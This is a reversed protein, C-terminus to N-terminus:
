TDLKALIDLVALRTSVTFDTQQSISYQLQRRLTPYEYGSGSQELLTGIAEFLYQRQPEPLEFYPAIAIDTTQEGETLDTVARIYTEVEFAGSEAAIRFEEARETAHETVRYALSNLAEYTSDAAVVEGVLQAGFRREVGSMPRVHDLLQEPVLGNDHNRLALEGLIWTYRRDVSWPETKAARLADSFGGELRIASVTARKLSDMIEREQSADEMEIVADIVARPVDISHSVKATIVAGLAEEPYTGARGTADTVRDVLAPYETGIVGATVFEGLVHLRLSPNDALNIDSILSTPSAIADALGFRVASILARTAQKYQRRESSVLAVVLEDALDTGHNNQALQTAGVARLAWKLRTESSAERVTQLLVQPVSTPAESEAIVLAGIAEAAINHDGTGTGLLVSTLLQSEYAEGAEAALYRGCINATKAGGIDDLGSWENFTPLNVSTSTQSDLVFVGLATAIRQRNQNTYARIAQCCSESLDGDFRKRAIVAEGVLELLGPRGPGVTWGNPPSDRLDTEFGDSRTTIAGIACTIYRRGANWDNAKLAETLADIIESSTRTSAAVTEGLSRAYFQRVSDRQDSVLEVLLSPPDFDSELGTTTVSALAVAARLRLRSGGRGTRAVIEQLTSLPKSDSEVWDLPNEVPSGLEHNLVSAYAQCRLDHVANGLLNTALGTQIAGVVADNTGLQDPKHVAVTLLMRLGSRKREQGPIEDREIYDPQYKPSDEADIQKSVLQGTTNAFTEIDAIETVLEPAVWSTSALAELACVKAETSEGASVAEVLPNILSRPSHPSVEYLEILSSGAIRALAQACYTQIDASPASAVLADATFRHERRLERRLTAALLPALLSVANPHQQALTALRQCADRQRVLLAWTNDATARQLCEALNEIEERREEDSISDLRRLTDVM